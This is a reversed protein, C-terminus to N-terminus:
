ILSSLFRVRWLPVYRYLKYISSSGGGGPTVLPAILTMHKASSCLVTGGVLATTQVVADPTWRVLWWSGAGRGGGGRGSLKFLLKIIKKGERRSFINSITTILLTSQARTVRFLLRANVLKWTGSCLWVTRPVVLCWTVLCRHSVLCTQNTCLLIMLLAAVFYFFFCNRLKGREKCTSELRGYCSDRLSSCQTWKGTFM